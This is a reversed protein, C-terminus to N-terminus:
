FMCKLTKWAHARDHCQGLLANFRPFRQFGVRAAKKLGVARAHVNIQSFEGVQTALRPRHVVNGDKETQM